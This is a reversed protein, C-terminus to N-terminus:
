AAPAVGIPHGLRQANTLARGADAFMVVQDTKHGAIGCSISVKGMSEGCKNKFTYTAIAESLNHTIRAAIRGDVEDIIVAFENRGIRFPLAQEPLTKRTIHGVEKLLHDADKDCLHAFHDIEFRVLWASHGLREARRAMDTFKQSFHRRNFLQTLDDTCALATMKKTMEQMQRASERAQQIRDELERHLREFIQNLKILENGAAEDGAMGCLHQRSIHAMRQTFDELSHTWWWLLSFGPIQILLIAIAGINFMESLKELQEPQLVPVAYQYVMFLVILVPMLCSLLYCSLFIRRFNEKTLSVSLNM